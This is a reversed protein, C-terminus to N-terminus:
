RINLSVQNESRASSLDYYERCIQVETEHDKSNSLEALTQGLEERKFFLSM